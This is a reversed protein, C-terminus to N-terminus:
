QIKSDHNFLTPQEKKSKTKVCVCNEFQWQGNELLEVTSGRKAIDKRMDRQWSVEEYCEPERCAAYIKGCKCKLVQSKSM